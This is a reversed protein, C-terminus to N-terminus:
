QFGLHYCCGHHQYKSANPFPKDAWIQPLLREHEAAVRRRPPYQEGGSGGNRETEFTKSNLNQCNQCGPTGPLGSKAQQLPIEAIKAIGRIRTKDANM